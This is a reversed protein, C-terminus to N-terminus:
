NLQNENGAIFESSFVFPFKTVIWQCSQASVASFLDNVMNAVTQETLISVIIIIKKKKKM